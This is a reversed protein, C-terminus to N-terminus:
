KEEEVEQRDLCYIGYLVPHALVSLTLLALLKNIILPRFSEMSFFGIACLLFIALFMVTFSIATVKDIWTCAKDKRGLMNLMAKAMNSLSLDILSIKMDTLRRDIDGISLSICIFPLILLGNAMKTALDILGILIITAILLAYIVLPYVTFAFFSQWMVKLILKTKERM